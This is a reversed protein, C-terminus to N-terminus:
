TFFIGAGENMLREFSKKASDLNEDKVLVEIKEIEQLEEKKTQYKNFKFSRLFMGYAVNLASEVNGDILVSAQKLKLKNLETYVKGGIDLARNQNWEDKKGLGVVVVYREVISGVTFFEGFTCNFSSLNKIYDIVQKEKIIYASSIDQFGEFLGVVIVTELSSSVTSIHINM